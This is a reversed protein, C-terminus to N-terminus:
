TAVGTDPPIPQIAQLAQLAEADTRYMKLWPGESLEGARRLTTEVPLKIGSIHLTIGRNSLQRHIQGFTEVGTADIRNIPQAFLCVHRTDPQSALQAAIAREFDSSAAFDLEADMRLAYLHPALPPLKWLHRDRLSGDPHLGVEIIRPHLRTHLFHSLGLLVGTMVGWYIRPATALTIAFTVGATLTEIRDIRWIKLFQRPQFLNLVAVIVAAAMVSRPVYALAPMLILLALLVFAVSAVVAWGSRAGAYLMLASRSFSTSTPFSGSFASALKALGQSFLETSDDWRKGDRQCEIRASSATELFSVLAIVMAPVWLQNIVELGPWHPWYFDPLGSPLQGVVAGHAQYDTAYGVASAAGMVLMIGPWRPKYRRLLLLLVLSTLGFLAPWGTLWAPWSYVDWSWAQIGLLGPVQSAMILLSAAQTFGMMVPASVLNILWGYHGLGLLLQIAGSLLSLWVALAVWEASGPEAMGTLSAGILVCTLAAPGVSLRNASGFLVALLAPILCTYLGTVLPMGALGAYAVAQPVMVLAVTLGAQVENRALSASLRPWQRFTLYRQMKSM